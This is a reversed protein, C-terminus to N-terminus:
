ATRLKYYMRRTLVWVVGFVIGGVFLLILLAIVLRRYKGCFCQRLRYKVGLAQEEDVLEVSDDATPSTMRTM